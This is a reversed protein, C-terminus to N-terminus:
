AKGHIICAVKIYINGHKLRGSNQLKLTGYVENLRNSIQRGNGASTDTIYNCDQEFFIRYLILSFLTVTM